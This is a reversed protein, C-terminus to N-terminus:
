KIDRVYQTIRLFGKGVGDNFLFGSFNEEVIDKM